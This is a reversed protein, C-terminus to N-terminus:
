RTYDNDIFLNMGSNMWYFRIGDEIQSQIRDLKYNPLPELQPFSPKWKTTDLVNTFIITAIHLSWYHMKGPEPPTIFAYKKSFPDFAAPILQVYYITSPTLNNIEFQHEFSEEDSDEFILSDKLTVRITAQVQKTSALSIEAATNPPFNVLPEPESLDPDLVIIRGTRFDAAYIQGKKDTALGYPYIGKISQGTFKNVPKGQEDFMLVENGVSLYIRGQHLLIDRGPGSGFEFDTLWKVKKDQWSYIEVQSMGNNLVFVKGDKIAVASPHDLQKKGFELIFKLNKDRHQVRNNGEDVVFINDNGDVSIDVPQNLQEDGPGFYGISNKWRGRKDFRHIRHLGEDGVIFDGNGLQACYLLFRNL